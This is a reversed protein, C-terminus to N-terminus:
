GTAQDGPALGMLGSLTEFRYGDALLEDTLKDVAAITQSRDCGLRWGGDHLIIIAGPAIRRRVRRLITETGPQRSDQPHISGIVPQHGLDSIVSLVRDNFWGLPPRLFLPPRGIENGILSDTVTIERRLLFDPLITLPVHHDGHNGIEHGAHHTQQLVERYRRVRRGVVFFTALIGKSALMDLLQPTHRPHPGDDFTLALHKATLDVECLLKRNLRERVAPIDLLSPSM